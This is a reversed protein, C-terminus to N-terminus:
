SLTKKTTKITAFLLRKISFCNNYLRKIIIEDEIIKNDKITRIWFISESCEKISIHLKHIFDRKSEAYIAEGINAGISTCSRKLDKITRIWFISESCEKISIHLKHIFDRKSEAYIAEGINAGISTCSRKLQDAISYERLKILERCIYMGDSAISRTLELIESNISDCGLYVVRKYIFGDM